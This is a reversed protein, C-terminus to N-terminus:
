GQDDPRQREVATHQDLEDAADLRADGMVFAAPTHEDGDRSTHAGEVTVEVAQCTTHGTGEITATFAISNDGM